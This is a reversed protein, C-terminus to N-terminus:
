KFTYSDSFRAHKCCYCTSNNDFLVRFTPSFSLTDIRTDVNISEEEMYDSEIAICKKWYKKKLWCFMGEMEQLIRIWNTSFKKLILNIFLYCHDRLPVKFRTFLFFKYLTMHPTLLVFNTSHQNLFEHIITSHSPANNHYLSTLNRTENIVTKSLHRLVLRHLVGM